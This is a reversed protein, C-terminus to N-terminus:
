LREGSSPDIGRERRSLPVAQGQISYDPLYPVSKGTATDCRSLTDRVRAERSM